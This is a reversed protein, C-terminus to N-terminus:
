RQGEPHHPQHDCRSNDAPSTGRPGDSGRHSSSGCRRGVPPLLLPLDARSARGPSFSGAICSELAPGHFIFCRDAGVVRWKKVIRQRRWPSQALTLEMLSLLSQFVTRLARETMSNLSLSVSTLYIGCLCWVLSLLSKQVMETQTHYLVQKSYDGTHEMQSVDLKIFINLPISREVAVGLHVPNGLHPCVAINKQLGPACKTNCTKEKPRCNSPIGISTSFCPKVWLLISVM